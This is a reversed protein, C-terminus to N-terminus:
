FRIQDAFLGFHFVQITMGVHFVVARSRDRDSDHLSSLMPDVLFRFYFQCLNVIVLSDLFGISATGSDNEVSLEESRSPRAGIVPKINVDIGFGVLNLM